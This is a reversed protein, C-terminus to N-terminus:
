EMLECLLNFNVKNKIFSFLFNIQKSFHIPQGGREAREEVWLFSESKKPQPNNTIPEALWALLCDVEKWNNIILSLFYSQLTLSTSSNIPTSQPWFRYSNVGYNSSHLEEIFSAILWEMLEWKVWGVRWELIFFNIRENLNIPSSILKIENMIIVTILHQNISPHYGKLFIVLQLFENIISKTRNTFLIIISSAKWVIM